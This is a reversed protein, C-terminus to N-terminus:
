ALPEVVFLAVAQRPLTVEITARGESSPLAEASRVTALQGADVLQRYQDATPAVPSGLRTWLAYANSHHEDIRYETVRLGRPADPLGHLQVTVAAEPGPVDVDHYHWALVCVKGDGTSSLAAVDPQERVGARIIEDLSVEASSTTAVRDGGMKAFMRFVNFVPLTIGNSALVRFGAFYPQDEFEFAWTVAGELNVGVRDAIAQKRGFSAATYSSFMTGARYGLQPGQCAACGDPDSEGLIIPKGKLEPFERYLKFGNEIVRLQNAIGMQVHGDAFTPAGKAHFSLYDLPSGIQGTAYNTGRLCHELFGRAFAGGSGATHPGGIRATPLARRVGDVAYDVVKYFEAPTGKWYDGNPENWVEWYWREVEEKGYRDVCHKAWEFCLDRWRDYDKPPYAWGTVIDKYPLGPRWEHQYPEPKTSLAQPMFGIQALPRVGRQLLTDFIRDVISWDYVPKGQADETYANTSGWKLAPTGDGTCLLNHTRFYTPHPGLRGIEALLKRGDKMYTYNPEDGGFFRYIPKMAGIPRAADVTIEVTMRTATGGGSQGPSTTAEVSAERAASPETALGALMGGAVMGIAERRSLEMPTEESEDNGAAQGRGTEHLSRATPALM